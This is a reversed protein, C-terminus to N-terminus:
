KSELWLRDALLITDPNLKVSCIKFTKKGHQSKLWFQWKKGNPYQYYDRVNNIAEGNQNVLRIKESNLWFM